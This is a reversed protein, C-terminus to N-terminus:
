KSKVRVHKWYDMLDTALEQRDAKKWGKADAKVYGILSVNAKGDIAARVVQEPMVTPTGYVVTVPLRTEPLVTRILETCFICDPTQLDFKFDFPMGIAIAFDRLAKRNRDGAKIRPRFIVVRDTNLVRNEGSLHVGDWDAEIFIRGERIAAQHPQLAPDDWVGAKRLQDETGLYIVAHGFLGPITNGTLRNKSSVVFFDLPQLQRRILLRAEPQGHLFGKRWVFLAMTKGLPKAVPRILDVLWEPQREPSHCCVTFSEPANRDQAGTVIDAQTACSVLFLM